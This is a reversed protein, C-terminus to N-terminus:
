KNYYFQVLLARYKSKTALLTTKVKVKKKRLIIDNRTQAQPPTPQKLAWSFLANQTKTTILSTLLKTIRATVM